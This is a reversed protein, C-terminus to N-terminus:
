NVSDYAKAFDLKLIIGDCLNSQMDRVIENTLLIGDSINKGKVFTSQTNSVLPDIVASIRNALVKLLIKFSSNILSIPRFDSILEPSSNKPILTFFSSNSGRPIYSNQYFDQFHNPCDQLAMWIEDRSFKRVLWSAQFPPLRNVLINKLDFIIEDGSSSFFNRFHDLFIQKIDDPDSFSVDGVKLVKISNRDNRFKVVQHFYKSNRDGELDWRLRSKQMLMATKEQYLAQLDEIVQSQSPSVAIGLDLANLLDEKDKIKKHIDGNEVNNWLKIVKKVRKLSACLPFNPVYRLDDRILTMLKENKIWVNFAKFPKSGWNM